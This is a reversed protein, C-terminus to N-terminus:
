ATDGNEILPIIVKPTLQSHPDKTWVQITPYLLPSSAVSSSAVHLRRNPWLKTRCLFLDFSSSLEQTASFLLKDEENM